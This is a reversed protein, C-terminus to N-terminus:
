ACVVAAGGGGGSGVAWGDWSRGGSPAEKVTSASPAKGTLALVSGPAANAPVTLETLVAYDHEYVHNMLGSVLLTGPVPFRLPAISVGAPLTWDIMLPLGADGPNLWYGHWGPAPQMLVALTVTRGPIAVSEALLVPQIHPPAARAPALGFLTASVFFALLKLLIRHM